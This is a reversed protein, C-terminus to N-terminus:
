AFAFRKMVGADILSIAKVKRAPPALAFLWRAEHLGRNMNVCGRRRIPIAKNVSKDGIFSAALCQIDCEGGVRDPIENQLKPAAIEL